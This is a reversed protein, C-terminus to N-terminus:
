PSSPRLDKLMERMVKRAATVYASETVIEGPTAVPAPRRQYQWIVQGSSADVVSALLGVIVFHTHTAGDPEWRQIELYLVPENLGSVAAIHAASEPSTPRRGKLATDVALWDAVDFGNAQLQVRAESLLVDSVSVPQAHRVYRDILGSGVVLLAKGTRNNPPLVAIARGLHEPPLPRAPACGVLCGACLLVILAGKVM